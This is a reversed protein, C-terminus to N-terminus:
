RRRRSTCRERPPFMLCSSRGAAPTASVHLLAARHRALPLPRGRAVRSVVPRAGRAASTRSPADILFAAASAAGRCAPPRDDHDDREGRGASATGAGVTASRGRM